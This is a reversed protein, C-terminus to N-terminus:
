VRRDDETIENVRLQDPSMKRLAERLADVRQMLEQRSGHVLYGPLITGDFSNAFVIVSVGPQQQYQSGGELMPTKEDFSSYEITAQHPSSGPTRIVAKIDVVATAKIDFKTRQLVRVEKVSGVYVVPAKRRVSEIFSRM